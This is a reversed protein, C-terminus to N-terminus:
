FFVWPVAAIHHGTVPDSMNVGNMLFASQDARAGNMNLLGDPGRVVGPLLPLADEFRENALPVENLVEQPIVAQGIPAIPLAARDDAPRVVVSDSFGAIQLVAKLDDSAPVVVADFTRDNFGSMSLVVHYTGPGLEDFTFRGDAGTVQEQSESAAAADAKVVVTVGPLAAGSADVAVGTLAARPAPENAVMKAAALLLAATTALVHYRIRNM